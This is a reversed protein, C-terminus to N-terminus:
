ASHVARYQGPTVGFSRKFHRSLHSQDAFGADFAADAINAGGRLLARARNIRVVNLYAHPSIGVERTFVRCLHFRSLGAIVSLEELSVNRDHHAELFERALRVARRERGVRHPTPPDGAHRTILHAMAHILGEEREILPTTPDELTKHLKVLMRALAKDEFVAEPFWPTPLDKDAIECAIRRLIDSEPYFMRYTWGESTAAEGSHVVEPNVVAVMGAPMLVHRDKGFRVDQAGELIVGLAYGSHAHPRFTHKVYTAHLLEMDGLTPDKWFRASERGGVAKM